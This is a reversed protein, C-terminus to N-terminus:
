GAVGLEVLSQAPGPPQEALAFGRGRERTLQDQTSRALQLGILALLQIPPEVFPM